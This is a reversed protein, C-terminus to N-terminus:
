IPSHLTSSDWNECLPIENSLDTVMELFYCWSQPNPAGGFFLRLAIYAVDESVIISQAAAAASYAVRCYADSFNYKAILIRETPFALRLAVVFHILRSLCWGYIMEPYQEMDIRKNVSVDEATISFTLDQTLRDKPIQEGHETLTFQKALGCPQVTAGEISHVTAVNVHFSFGHKVDKALLLSVADPAQTVSKHNGSALNAEMETIREEESLDCIFSYDIGNSYIKEFFAFNPHNGLISRM